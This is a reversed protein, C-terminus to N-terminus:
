SLTRPEVTCRIVSTVGIRCKTIVTVQGGPMARAATKNLGVGAGDCAEPGVILISLKHHLDRHFSSEPALNIVARSLARRYVLLV